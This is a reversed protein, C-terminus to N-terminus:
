RRSRRRSRTPASAETYAPGGLAETAALTERAKRVRPSEPKPPMAMPTRRRERKTKAKATAAAQRRASKAVAVEDATAYEPTDDRQPGRAPEAASTRAKREANLGKVYAKWHTACMRGLGDKQSPQKPFDSVPADHPEIGFRASGICRRTKTTAM